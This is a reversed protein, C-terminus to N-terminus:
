PANKWQALAELDEELSAADGRIVPIGLRSVHQMFDALPLEAIEAARGLSLTENRYLATAIALRIGPEGLLSDDSLHILAAEPRDGDLVIVLDTRAERLAASPDNKLDRVTVAKM